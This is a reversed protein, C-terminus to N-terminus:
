SRTGFPVGTKQAVKEAWHSLIKYKQKLDLYRDEHLDIYHSLKNALNNVTEILAKLEIRIEKIESRVEEFDFKSATQAFGRAVMMALDENTVKKGKSLKM